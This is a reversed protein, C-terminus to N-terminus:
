QDNAQGHRNSGTLRNCTKTSATLGITLIMLGFGAVILVAIMLISALACIM